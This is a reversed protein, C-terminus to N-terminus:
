RCGHHRGSRLPQVAAAGASCQRTRVWLGTLRRSGAAALTPAEGWLSGDRDDHGTGLWMVALAGLLTGALFTVVLIVIVIM